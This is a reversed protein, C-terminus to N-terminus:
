SLGLRAAEGFRNRIYLRDDLHISNGLMLIYLRRWEAVRWETRRRDALIRRLEERQVAGAIQRILAYPARGVELYAQERITPHSSTLLRSFFELREQSGGKARWRDARELLTSIVKQYESDAYGLRGWDAEAHRRYLLVADQKNLRLSQRTKSDLLLGVSQDNTTGKLTQTIAFSFPDAPDERAMVITDSEFLVDAHTKTPYPICVVCARAEYVWPLAMLLLSVM